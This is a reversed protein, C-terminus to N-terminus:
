AMTYQSMKTNGLETYRIAQGLFSHLLYFFYLRDYFCLYGGCFRLQLSHYEFHYQFNINFIRDMEILVIVM